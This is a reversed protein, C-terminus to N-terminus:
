GCMWRPAISPVWPGSRVTRSHGSCRSRSPRSMEGVEDLFLTGSDASQILGRKFGVAGTFAGRVHGFLESELLTESLGGCNVAIFSREKRRSLGHIARAVLEKGTGSKGLILITADSPAVVEILRTLERIPPSEGIIQALGHRRALERQLRQNERQLYREELAREVLHSLRDVSVPKTMYGYAGLKTADVASDLSSYATMLIVSPPEAMDGVARLLGMGDMRPMSLDSLVLDIPNTQILEWAAQGDGATLVSYGAESLIDKSLEQSVADDDVVLIHWAAANARHGEVIQATAGGNARLISVRIRCRRERGEACDSSLVSQKQLSSPEPGTETPGRCPGGRVVGLTAVGAVSAAAWGVGGAVDAAVRCLTASASEICM